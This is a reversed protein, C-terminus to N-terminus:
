PLIADSVTSDDASMTLQVLSPWILTAPGCPAAVQAAFEHAGAAACLFTFPCSLNKRYKALLAPPMPTSVASEGVPGHTSGIPLGSIM